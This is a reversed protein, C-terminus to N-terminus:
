FLMCFGTKKDNLEPLSRSLSSTPRVSHRGVTPHLDSPLKNFESHVAHCYPKYILSTMTKVGEEEKAPEWM